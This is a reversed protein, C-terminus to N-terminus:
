TCFTGYKDRVGTALEEQLSYMYNTEFVTVIIGNLQGKVYKVAVLM